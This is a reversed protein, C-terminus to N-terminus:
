ATGMFRPLSEPQVIANVEAMAIDFVQQGFAPDDDATFRDAQPAYFETKYVCASQLSVVLSVAIGEVDVFDEHLDAALLM